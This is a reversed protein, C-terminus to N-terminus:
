RASVAVANDALAQARKLAPHSADVSHSLHNVAAVFADRAAATAGARARIEGEVLWALGTRVSWPTGGQLSQALQLADRSDAQALALQGEKLGVEARGVLASITSGNPRRTALTASFESRALTLDNQALALRGRVIHEGQAVPGGPPRASADMLEVQKLYARAQALSGSDIASSTLGLLAFARAIPNGAKDAAALAQAYAKNAESYRGSVELSRAWNGLLFSPLKEGNGAQLSVIQGYLAVATKVDGSGLSVLGWNNRVSLAQAGAERGLQEYMRLSAAFERGAEDNRGSLHLGYALDGTLLATLSPSARQSAQLAKLARRASDVAGPGDNLNQEVYALYTFCQVAAEADIDSRSATAQLDRRAEDIRGRIELVSARQCTLTAKLSADSSGRASELARNILAEAKEGEGLTRHHMALMALVVARSEPADRFEKDALTESRALMEPLNIPRNSLAAETIFLDLFETIAENRTLLALARDRQQSAAHAQWLTVSVSVMLALAAISGAAVPWRNRRLFKGARYGFRDPQAQVPRNDLHAEIDAILADVTAYREAPNKKLAKNLVADLDGRLEKAVAKDTCAVSALPPDISAIAEELAAASQRKLTYPSTGALLRYAVVGLSYVDSATGLPEGRIQEPSAYEPTMAQGGRQTLQTEQTLEGEMLKAIGFDLLRVEGQETVLINAPKLDRHVVLRAHAHAVARAVQLLLKLRDKIPLAHHTCYLDIAEGEVYELALYPRGHEDVGADYLRAINPHDLSALIDRERSMREALGRSWSLRPLKLAVPRKLGGDVREALWVRGMGGVGLERVLRYPGIATGASEDPSAGESAPAAGLTLRPLTGAFDDTEVGAEDFLLHRLKSKISEPEALSDLWTSRQQPEIALAEDLRQSIAPWEESLFRLDAM